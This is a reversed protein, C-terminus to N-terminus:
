RGSQLASWTASGAVGDVTLGRSSQYDRVAQDTLSGFTGDITVTRALAATLARQLRQVDLGTSGLSLVPRYGASLLATWTHAGVIGDATLGKATQFAVVASQTQAGFQGDVVIPGYGEDNLLYQAATVTAGTSGSRITPYASLDRNVPPPGDRPAHATNTPHRRGRG